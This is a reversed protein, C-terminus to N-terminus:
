ADGKENALDRFAAYPDNNQEQRAMKRATAQRTALTDAALLHQRMVEGYKASRDFIIYNAEDGAKAACYESWAFAEAAKRMVATPSPGVYGGSRGALEEMEQEFWRQALAWYPAFDPHTNTPVAGLEKFLRRGVAKSAASKRGLAQAAEKNAITGDSRRALPATVVLPPLEELPPTCVITTGDEKENRRIAM